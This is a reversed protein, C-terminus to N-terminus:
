MGVLSASMMYIDNVVYGVASKSLDETYAVAYATKVMLIQTNTITSYM